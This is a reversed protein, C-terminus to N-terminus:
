DGPCLECPGGAPGSFGGDCICDASSTSGVVSSSNGTCQRTENGGECWYKAKCQICPGEFTGLYGPVCICQEQRWSGPDSTALAPCSVTSDNVCFSGAPCEECPGGAPGLFGLNCICAEKETQGEPGNSGKPCRVTENGGPCWSGSPCLRCVENTTSLYGPPTTIFLPDAAGALGFREERPKHMPDWPIIVSGTVAISVSPSSQSRQPNTVNFKIEYTTNAAVMKRQCLALKLINNELLTEWEAKRAEGSSACFMPPSSPMTKSCVFSQLGVNCPLSQWGTRASVDSRYVAACDLINSGSDSNTSENAWGEFSSSQGDEWKWMGEDKDDPGDSYGIWGWTAGASRLMEQVLEDEESSQISALTAQTGLENKCLERATEYDPFATDIVKFCKDSGDLHQGRLDSCENTEREVSISLESDPVLAGVLGSVSITSSDITQTTRLTLTLENIMDKTNGCAYFPESQRIDQVDWIASELGIGASLTAM